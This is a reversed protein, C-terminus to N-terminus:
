GPSQLLILLRLERRSINIVEIMSLISADDQNHRLVVTGFIIIFLDKICYWSGLPIIVDIHNLYEVDRHRLNITVSDENSTM